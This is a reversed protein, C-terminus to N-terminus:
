LTRGRDSGAAIPRAPKKAIPADHAEGRESGSPIPPAALERIGGM